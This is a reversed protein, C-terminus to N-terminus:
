GKPIVVLTMSTAPLTVTMQGGAISLDAVKTLAAGDQAVYRYTQASPGTTFGAVSLPAAIAAGTKNILVVTVVTATSASDVAAFVSVGNLTTAAGISVAGFTGGAGDYNRYMKFAQGPPLLAGAGDVPTTWYAALRVGYKGYIGLVDAQVLAASPASESGLNFNYESVCVGTGPYAAAIWEQLRPFLRVPEGVYSDLWSPDRYAADWLSATNQLPDGGQPYYHLDLCDVLRQGTSREYAALQQLYWQALPLGGHAKKDDDNGNASDIGSEFLDLVGWSTYGLIRAGPDAQRIVPAYSSTTQWVEAFTVPSPHVARHTSDWLMMENDLQYYRVGGAGAGAGGGALGALGFKGVLHALWGGEFAPPAAVAINTPDATLKAGTPTLGNGCNTDYPDVSQQPGYTAVPFGCTFPHNPVRDKPTWGITPVTMLTAAGAGKNATIFRDASSVYAATGYTSDGGNNAINEFYYDSGTNSVDLQWNFLTVGNGGWRNLPVNLATLTAADAFALGYIEPHIAGGHAGVDIQIPSGGSVAACAGAAGCLQDQACAGCSQGCGDDGCTKGGCNATCTSGGADGSTGGDNKTAAAGGAGCGASLMALLLVRRM